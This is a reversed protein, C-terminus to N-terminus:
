LESLRLNINRERDLKKVRLNKIQQTMRVEAAEKKKEPALSEQRVKEKAPQKVPKENIRHRKLKKQIDVLRIRDNDNIEQRRIIKKRM